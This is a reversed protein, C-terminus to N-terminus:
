HAQRVSPRSAPRARHRSIRRLLQTGLFVGLLEGETIVLSPFRYGPQTYYYGRRHRDYALPAGLSDRLYELDRRITKESWELLRALTTVNPFRSAQVEEHIQLLRNYSSRRKTLM